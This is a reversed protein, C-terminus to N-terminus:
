ASKIGKKERFKKLASDIRDQPTNLSKLTDILVKEQESIQAKAERIRLLTSNIGIDQPNKLEDIVTQQEEVMKRLEALEKQESTQIISSKGAIRKEMETAVLEPGNEKTLYQEPNEKVIESSIRYKENEQCLIEQIEKDTKGQDKLEKERKTTDLEPHRILVKKNSEDQKGVFDKIFSDKQQTRVDTSRERSRSLAREAIWEQAAVQDELLWEELQDRSMERCQERPKDKDEELYKQTRENEKQKLITALEDKKDPQIFKKVLNENEQKQIELEKRLNQAEKSTQDEVQKLKNVLEDIRKQSEEKVRKIKDEISLNAEEKKRTEEALVEARKKEEETREESKKTLIDADKKIQAETEEQQKKKTEELAKKESESMMAERTKQISEKEKSVMDQLEKKAEDVKIEAM